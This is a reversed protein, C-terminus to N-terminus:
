QCIDVVSVQIKVVVTQIKAAVIQIRFVVGQMELVVQIKVVVQFPPVLIGVDSQLRTRILSQSDPNRLGRGEIVFRQPSPKTRSFGLTWDETKQIKGRTLTVQM